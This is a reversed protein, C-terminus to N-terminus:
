MIAELNEIFMQNIEDRECLGKMDLDVDYGHGLLTRYWSEEDEPDAMDNQAHDGAVLLFPSLTIKDESADELDSLIDDIELDGELTGVFHMDGRARLTDQINEYHIDSEHYSGHGMLVTPNPFIDEITDAVKEYETELLLPKSYSINLDDKFQDGQSIVKEYEVGDIIYLMMVYVNKIGKDQIEELAQTFNYTDKGRKKLIKRVIESSYSELVLHDPYTTKINEYLKGISIDYAEEYTTGFSALVIADM